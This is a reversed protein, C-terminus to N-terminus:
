STECYTLIYRYTTDFILTAQSTQPKKNYSIDIRSPWLTRQLFCKRYMARRAECITAALQYRIRLQLTLLSKKKGLHMISSIDSMMCLHHFFGCPLPLNIPQTLLSFFESRHLIQSSLGVSSPHCRQGVNPTSPVKFQFVDMPINEKNLMFTYHERIRRGLLKPM